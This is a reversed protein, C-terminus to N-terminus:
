PIVLPPRFPSRLVPRFPIRIPPRGDGGLLILLVPDSGTENGSESASISTSQLTFPDFISIHGLLLRDTTNGAAADAATGLVAVVALALAGLLMKSVFSFRSRNNRVVVNKM